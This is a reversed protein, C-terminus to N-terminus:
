SSRASRAACSQQSMFRQRAELDKRALSPGCCESQRVPIPTAAEM